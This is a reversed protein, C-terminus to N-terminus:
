EEETKKKDTRIDPISIRELQDLVSYFRKSDLLINTEHRVTYIDIMGSIANAFAESSILYKETHLFNWFAVISDNNLAHLHDPHKHDRYFEKDKEYDDLWEQPIKINQRKLIDLMMDIEKESADMRYSFYMIKGLVQWGDIPFHRWLFYDVFDFSKKDSDNESASVYTRYIDQTRAHKTESKSSRLLYRQFYHLLVEIYNSFVRVHFSLDVLDALDAYPNLSLESLTCSLFEKFCLETKEDLLQTTEESEKIESSLRYQLYVKLCEVLETILEELRSKSLKGNKCVLDCIKINRGNLIDVTEQVSARMKEKRFCFSDLQEFDIEKMM